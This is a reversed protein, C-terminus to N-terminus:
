KNDIFDLLLKVFYRYFCDYRVEDTCINVLIERNGIYAWWIPGFFDKFDVNREIGRNNTYYKWIYKCIYVSIGKPMKSLMLYVTLYYDLDKEIDFKPNKSIEARIVDAMFVLVTLRGTSNDVPYGEKKHMANVANSFIHLDSVTTGFTAM